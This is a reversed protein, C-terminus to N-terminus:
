SPPLTTASTGSATARPCDLPPWPRAGSTPGTRATSRGATAGPLCLSRPRQIIKRPDTEDEIWEARVPFTRLHWRLAAEAITPLENTRSSTKTKALALHPRRGATVALQHRVHVERKEFDIGGLELGFIEGGRWGCGAALYVIARYREPLAAYLAHVQAPRAIFYQPDPIDPLRVSKGCPSAGIRKDEVAANFMPVLTGNYVVSLTSPALVTARDKVWGKIHSTRVGSLPLDGIVPLVHRRLVGEQREATSARHLQAKRWLQAYDRVTMQGARPDVYQGRSIDAHMNADHRDADARREFLETQTQGTQPDVWRVRWRKGRGHRRTSLREGTEPDRARRYWLDDVAM